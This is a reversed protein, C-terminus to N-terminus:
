QEWQVKAPLNILKRGTRKAPAPRSISTQKSLFTGSVPQQHSTQDSLFTNNAPPQYALLYPIPTNAPPKKGLIKQTM